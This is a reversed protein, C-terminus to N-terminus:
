MRSDLPRTSSFQGFFFGSCQMSSTHFLRSFDCSRKGLTETTSFDIVRRVRTEKAIGLTMTTLLHTVNHLFTGLFFLFRFTPLFLPRWLRFKPSFLFFWCFTRKTSSSRATLCDTLPLSQGMNVTESERPFHLSNMTGTAISPFVTSMSSSVPAETVM